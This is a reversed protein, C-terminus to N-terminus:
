RRCREDVDCSVKEGIQHEYEHGYPEEPVDLEGDCPASEETSDEGGAYECRDDTNHVTNVDKAVVTISLADPRVDQYPM